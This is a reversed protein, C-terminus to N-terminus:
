QGVIRPHGSVPSRKMGPATRWCLPVSAVALVFSKSVSGIWPSSSTSMTDVVCHLRLTDLGDSGVTRRVIELLSSFSEWGQPCM